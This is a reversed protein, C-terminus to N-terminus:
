DGHTGERRDTEDARETLAGATWTAWRQILPDQASNAINGAVEARGRIHTSESGWYADKPHQFAWAAARWVEDNEGGLHILKEFMPDLTGAENSIAVHRFLEAPENLGARDLAAAVLDADTCHALVSLMRLRSLRWAWVHLGTGAVAEAVLAVVADATQSADLRAARCVLDLEDAGPLESKLVAIVRPLLERATEPVRRLIQTRYFETMGSSPEGDEQLSKDVLRLTAAVLEPPATRGGVDLWEFVIALAHERVLGGHDELADLIEMITKAELDQVRRGFALLSLAYPDAGAAVAEVALHAREDSPALAAVLAPVHRVREHDALWEHVRDTAWDGSGAADRAAIFGIRAPLAAPPDVLRDFAEDSVRSGFLYFLRQVTRPNGEVSALVAQPLRAPDGAMDEALRDLFSEQAEASYSELQYPEAGMATALRPEFADGELQRLLRELLDRQDANLAKDHDRTVRIEHLLEARAPGVWEVSTLGEELRGDLGVRICARTAHALSRAATPQVDPERALELLFDWAAGLSAAREDNNPPFWDERTSARGRLMVGRTATLDFAGGLVHAILSRAAADGGEALRRAAAVRDVYAEATGSLVLQFAQEFLNRPGYTNTVPDARALQFLLALSADFTEHDWLLEEIAGLVDHPVSPAGPDVVATLLRLGEAPDLVAMALLMRARISNLYESAAPKFRDRNALERAFRAAAASGPMSTLRDVLALALHEPVREAADVLRTGFTEVAEQSLWIAVIEPSVRRYDGSGTLLRGVFRDLGAADALRDRGLADSITGFESGAVGDVGVRGFPALSALAELADRDPVLRSLRARVDPDRAVAVLEAGPGQRATVARIQLALGPYGGALVVLAEDAGAGGETPDLVRRIADRELPGVMLQGVPLSSAPDPDQVAIVTLRGAATAVFPQVASVAADTAPDLVLVASAEPVHAVIEAVASGGNTAVLTRQRIGDMNIAEFVTRSTGVGADGYVRLLSSSPSGGEVHARIAAVVGDRQRDSEFAGEFLTAWEDPALVGAGDLGIAGLAVGPHRQILETIQSLFLFTVPADPIIKAIEDRFAERIAEAERDVPDNTWFLVYGVDASQLERVVWKDGGGKPKGFERQARVPSAGSKVQWVRVGTPFPTAADVPFSTRGDVGGDKAKVRQSFDVAELPLSLRAREAHALSQALRLAGSEDLDRIRDALQSLLGEM